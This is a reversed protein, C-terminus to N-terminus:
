PEGLSHDALAREFAWDQNLAGEGNGFEWVWRDYFTQWNSLPNNLLFNTGSVEDGHVDRVGGLSLIRVKEDVSLEPNMVIRHARPIDERWCHLGDTLLVWDDRTGAWSLLSDFEDHSMEDLFVHREEAGSTVKLQNEQRLDWVTGDITEIYSLRDQGIEDLLEEIIRRVAERRTM